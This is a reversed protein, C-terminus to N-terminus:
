ASRTEKTLTPRSLIPRPRRTVRLDLVSLDEDHDLERADRLRGCRTKAMVFYPDGRRAM